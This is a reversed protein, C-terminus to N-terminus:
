WVSPFFATINPLPPPSAAEGGVIWERGEGEMASSPKDRIKKQRQRRPFPLLLIKREEPRQRSSLFLLPHHDRGQSCLPTCGSHAAFLLARSSFSSSQITSGKQSFRSFAGPAAPSNPLSRPPKIAAINCARKRGEPRRGRKKAGRENFRSSRHNNCCCCCSKKGEAM